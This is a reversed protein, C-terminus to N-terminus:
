TSIASLGFGVVIQQTEGGTLIFTEALESASFLVIPATVGSPSLTLFAHDADTWVNDPDVSTNTFTLTPSTLFGDALTWGSLAVATRAVPIRAYGTGVVEEVDALTSLRGEPLAGTGLGVYFSGSGAIVTQFALRLIENQGSVYAERM